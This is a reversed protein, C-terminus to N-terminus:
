KDKIIHINGNGVVNNSSGQVTQSISAVKNKIGSMYAIADVKGREDLDNFAILAMKEQTSLQETQEGWLLFDVSVNFQNSIKILNELPITNRKKWSVISAATLGLIEALEKDQFVNSIKKMRDVIESSNIEIPNKM